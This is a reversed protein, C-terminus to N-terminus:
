AMRDRPASAHAAQARFYQETGAYGHRHLREVAEHLGAPSPTTLGLGQVICNSITCVATVFVLFYLAQEDHGAAFVADVDTPGLQTPCLTLKRAYVLATRLRESVEATYVDQLLQALIGAPLGFAAALAAHECQCYDCGNLASVYAALLEREGATFPADGRMVAENLQSFPIGIAPERALTDQMDADPMSPLFAM